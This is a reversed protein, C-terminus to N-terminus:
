VSDNKILERDAATHMIDINGSVRKIEDEHNPQTESVRMKNESLNHEARKRQEQDQEKEVTKRHDSSEIQQVKLVDAFVIERAADPLSIGNAMLVEKTCAIANSTTKFKSSKSVDIWFLVRLNITADNLKDAVVLPAPDKLIDPIGHIVGTVLDIAKTVSDGYGIGVDFSIRTRPNTTRNQIISKIVISNPVLILRGDYALITTGRMNLSQVFGDFGAVNIDDGKTFPSRIALLIGSIYNEAIDKFAFGLVIGLAGTGGIITTALGSLGATQLVLYFLLIWLPIMTIKSVTSLLFPNNISRGWLTQVGRYAARSFFWGATIMLAAILFLPLSRKLKNILGRFENWAPTLDTVPPQDVSAKNVVAIVTPLRDATRALWALQESNKTHGELTVVGGSVGIKVEPFWNSKQALNNLIKETREDDTASPVRAVKDVTDAATASLTPSPKVLEQARANSNLAIFIAFLMSISKM